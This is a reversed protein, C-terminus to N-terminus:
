LHGHLASPRRGVETNPQRDSGFITPAERRFPSFVCPPNGGGVTPSILRAVASPLEVTTQFEVVRKGEVWPGCTCQTAFLGCLLFTPDIRSTADEVVKEGKATHFKLDFTGDKYIEDFVQACVATLSGGCM